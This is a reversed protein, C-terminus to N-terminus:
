GTLISGFVGEDDALFFQIRLNGAELMHGRSGIEFDRQGAELPFDDLAELSLSMNANVPSQVIEHGGRQREDTMPNCLYISLSSRM